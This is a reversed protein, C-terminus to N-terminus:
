RHRHFVSVTRVWAIFGLSVPREEQQHSELIEGSLPCMCQPALWSAEQETQQFPTPPEDEVVPWESM